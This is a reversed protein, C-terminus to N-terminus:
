QLSRVGAILGGVTILGFALAPLYKWVGAKEPRYQFSESM